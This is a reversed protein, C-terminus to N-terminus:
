SIILDHIILCQEIPLHILLEILSSQSSISFTDYGKKKAILRARLVHYDNSCIVIKKNRDNIIDLSNKINEVTNISRDEVIIRDEKIHREILLQKMVQAESVKNNDTYGGSVIVKCETNNLLYIVARNIRKIMTLTPKNHYLGSGLLILYDAKQNYLSIGFILILLAYALIFLLIYKM